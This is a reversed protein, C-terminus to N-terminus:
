IPGLAVDLCPNLEPFFVLFSLFNVADGYTESLDEIRSRRGQFSNEDFFSQDM